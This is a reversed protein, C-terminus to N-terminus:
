RRRQDHWQKARTAGLSYHSIVIGGNPRRARQRGLHCKAAYVQSMSRLGGGAVRQYPWHTGRRQAATTLAAPARVQLLPRSSLSSVPRSM